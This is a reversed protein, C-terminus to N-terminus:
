CAPHMALRTRFRPHCHGRLGVIIRLSRLPRYFAGPQCLAALFQRRPRWLPRQLMQAFIKASTLKAAAARGYTDPSPVFRLWQVIVYRDCMTAPGCPGPRRKVKKSPGIKGGTQCQSCRWGNVARSDVVAAMIDNDTHYNMGGYQYTSSTSQYNYQRQQDFAPSARDPPIYHQM